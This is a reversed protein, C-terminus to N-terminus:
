FYMRLMLGYITHLGLETYISTWTTKNKNLYLTPTGFTVAACNSGYSKAMLFEANAFPTSDIASPNYNIIQTLDSSQSPDLLPSSVVTSPSTISISSSGNFVGSPGTPGM